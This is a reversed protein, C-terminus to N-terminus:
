FGINYLMVLAFYGLKSAADFPNEALDEVLDDVVCLWTFFCAGVVQANAEAANLFGFILGSPDAKKMISKELPPLAAYFFDINPPSTDKRLSLQPIALRQSGASLTTLPLVLESLQPTKFPPSTALDLDLLNEVLPTLEPFRRAIAPM